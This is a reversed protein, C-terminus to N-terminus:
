WCQQSCIHSEHNLLYSKRPRPRLEGVTLQSSKGAGDRDVNVPALEATMAVEDDKVVPVKSLAKAKTEVEEAGQQKVLAERSCKRARNCRHTVSWVRPPHCVGPRDAPVATLRRRPLAIRHRLAHGRRRLGAHRFHGPAAVVLGM